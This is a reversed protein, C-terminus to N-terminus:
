GLGWRQSPSQSGKGIDGCEQRGGPGPPMARGLVVLLQTGLVLSETGKARLPGSGPQSYKFTHGQRCAWRTYKGTYTGTHRHECTCKSWCGKYYSTAPFGGGINDKTEQERSCFRLAWCGPTVSGSPGWADSSHTLSLSPGGSSGRMGTSSSLM